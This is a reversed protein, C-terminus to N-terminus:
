MNRRGAPPPATIPQQQYVPQRLLYDRLTVASNWNNELLQYPVDPPLSGPWRKGQSMARRYEVILDNLIAILEQQVQDISTAPEQVVVTETQRPARRNNRRFSSTVVGSSVSVPDYYYRDYDPPLDVRNRRNYAAQRQTIERTVTGTRLQKEVETLQEELLASRNELWQIRALSEAIKRRAATYKTVATEIGGANTLQADTLNLEALVGSLSEVVKDALGVEVAVTPPLNLVANAVQGQTLTDSSVSADVGEALTRIRTQNPQREDSRVFDRRSGDTVEEVSLHKDILAQVLLAPRNHEHALAAAFVNYSALTDSSYTALYNLFDEDTVGGGFVPGIAGISATPAIYVRDCAMAILAASSFAGGYEKGSIYAYVPCNTTQTIASTIIKMYDGRGGPNDIQVIIAQPGKNSADIITKAITESVVQSLLVQSQTIPVVYVNDKRGTSNFVVTYENVSIPTMEKKDSNYVLTKGGTRKQTMFGNFVEGTEKHTFTDAVSVATLFLPVLLIMKTRRKDTNM